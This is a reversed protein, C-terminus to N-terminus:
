IRPDQNIWPMLFAFHLCLSTPWCSFLFCPCLPVLKKMGVSFLNFNNVGESCARQFPLRGSAYFFARTEAQLIFGRNVSVCLLCPKLFLVCSLDFGLCTCKWVHLAWALTDLLSLNIGKTGHVTSWMNLQHLEVYIWYFNTSSRRSVGSLIRAM